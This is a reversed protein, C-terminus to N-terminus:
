IEINLFYKVCLKLWLKYKFLFLTVVDVNVKQM